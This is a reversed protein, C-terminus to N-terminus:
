NSNFIINNNKFIGVIVLNIDYVHGNEKSEYYYEKGNIEIKDLLEEDQAPEFSIEHQITKNLDKAKLYKTKIKDFDLKEGHCVEILLKIKEEILNNIYEEKIKKLHLQMQLDLEQIHDTFVNQLNKLEKLKKMIIFLVYHLIYM